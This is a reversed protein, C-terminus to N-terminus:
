GNRAYQSRISSFNFTYSNEQGTKKVIRSRLKPDTIKNFNLTVNHDGRYLKLAAIPIDNKPILQGNVSIIADVHKGDKHLFLETLTPIRNLVHNRRFLVLAAIGVVPTLVM